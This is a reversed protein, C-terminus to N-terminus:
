CNDDDNKSNASDYVRNSVRYYRVRVSFRTIYAQEKTKQIYIRGNFINGLFNALKSKAEGM